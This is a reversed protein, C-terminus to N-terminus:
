ARFDQHTEPVAAWAVAKRGSHTITAGAAVVKGARELELRRPRCTNGPLGTVEAIREDSIPGHKRIAEYVIRQLRKRDPRIRVEAEGRTQLTSPPESRVERKVFDFTIQDASM